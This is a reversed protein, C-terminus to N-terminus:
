ILEFLGQQVLIRLRLHRFTRFGFAIRKIVQNLNIKGELKRNSYSYMLANCIAKRHKRLYLVAKELDKKWNSLVLIFARM